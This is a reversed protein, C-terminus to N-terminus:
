GYVQPRGKVTEVRLLCLFDDPKFHINKFVPWGEWQGTWVSSSHESYQYDVYAHDTDSQTKIQCTKNKSRAM